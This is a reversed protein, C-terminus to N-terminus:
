SSRPRRAARMSRPRSPPPAVDGEGLAATVSGLSLDVVAYARLEPDAIAAAALLLVDVDSPVAARLTFHGDVAITSSAVRRGDLTQADVLFVMGPLAHPISATGELVQSTTRECGILLACLAAVLGPRHLPSHSKMGGFGALFM